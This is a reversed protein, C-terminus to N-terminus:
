KKFHPILTRFTCYKPRFHLPYVAEIYRIFTLPISLFSSPFENKVEVSSVQLHGSFCIALIVLLICVLVGFLKVLTRQDETVFIQVLFICLFIFIACAIYHKFIPMDLSRYQKELDNKPFWLAFSSSKESKSWQKSGLEDITTTMENHLEEDFKCKQSKNRCRFTCFCYLPAPLCHFLSLSQSSFHDCAFYRKLATWFDIETAEGFKELIKTQTQRHFTRSLHSKLRKTGM